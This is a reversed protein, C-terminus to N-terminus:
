KESFPAVDPALFRQKAEASMLRDRTYFLFPADKCLLQPNKECFEESDASPRGHKIMANVLYLWTTTLTEHYGRDVAEPVAHARNLAKIGHRVRELAVEFSNDRLYLYAVRIHQRHTWGSATIEAREFLQLFKQDNDHAM